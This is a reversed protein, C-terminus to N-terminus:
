VKPHEKKMVICTDAQLGFLLAGSQNQGLRPRRARRYASLRRGDICNINFTLQCLM